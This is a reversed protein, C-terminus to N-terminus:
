AHVVGSTSQAADNAVTETAAQAKVALAERLYPWNVDPRLDEPLVVGDSEISIRLCLGEGLSQKTSIAKFLYALSTSCRAAFDARDQLSMAKLFAALKDM